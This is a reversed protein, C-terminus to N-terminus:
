FDKNNKGFLSAFRKAFNNAPKSMFRNEYERVATKAAAIYIDVASSNFLKYDDGMDAAGPILVEMRPSDKVGIDTAKKAIVSVTQTKNNQTILLDFPKDQIMAQMADYAKRVNRAPNYSLNGPFINIKGQFTQRSNQSMSINQVQM